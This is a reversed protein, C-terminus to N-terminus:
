WIGGDVENLSSGGEDPSWDVNGASDTKLIDGGSYGTAVEEIDTVKKIKDVIGDNDIDYVSKRMFDSLDATIFPFTVPM